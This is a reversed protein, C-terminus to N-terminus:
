ILYYNLPKLYIYFQPHRDKPTISINFASLTMRVSRGTIETMKQQALSQM